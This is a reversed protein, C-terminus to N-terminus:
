KLLAVPLVIACLLFWDCLTVLLLARRRRRAM